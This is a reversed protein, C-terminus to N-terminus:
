IILYNVELLFSFFSLFSPPSPLSLCLCLLCVSLCVSFLPFHSQYVLRRVRGAM